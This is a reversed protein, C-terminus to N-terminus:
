HDHGPMPLTGLVATLAVAVTGFSVECWAVRRLSIAAGPTTRLTPSLWRWNYLGCAAAGVFAAVKLGLVTGYPTALNEIAGVHRWTAILGGAVLLLVAPQAIRSFRDVAEAFEEVSGGGDIEDSSVVLIAALTGLWLAAAVVHAGQALVTIWVGDEMGVAHGTLSTAFATPLAVTLFLPWRWFARRVSLASALCLLAGFAQWTWGAGWPTETVIVRVLLWTLPQDGGFAQYTQQWLRAGVTVVLVMAAVIALIGLRREWVRAVSSSVGSLVWAGGAMGAVAMVAMYWAWVIM